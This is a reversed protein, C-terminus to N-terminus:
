GLSLPKKLEKNARIELNELSKDEYYINTDDAFLYLDLKKSINPLDNIYILFLLPGLVSGQPVGCSIQKLESCEGNIYVYQKRESLYSRFWQLSPGRVGYHEMKLLLINHNVTDFAKRLDIFIGCGYKGKDVSERIKDTIKILADITSNNKRFGFQKSYLINNLELFKYLREHMIKEMIKDFISLLSIPRYNNMDQTSGNKHIPIVKVIKLPDPFSGSVFSLNIINCLPIIILDPILKLLKVPISAPGASKNQLTNIIKFVEDHSVHALFFDFQNRKKLFKNPSINESRPISSETLPGVNVFFDNLQNAVDKPNDIIKGNINLQTIKTSINNRINVIERIGSWIKKINMKNMEFYESYYKKKSKKIERAARNRFLNYLRKTNANNPQRKKRAFIKNRAKILKFIETSIWPKSQLKIEKPSLKKYPAHRDVCGQLKSYFDIFLSNVNPLNTNWNQISVDERFQQSLFKSYDRQFISLNKYDMKERKITLFQSFHDSLSLFINGSKTEDILNDSFINDILTSHHDTVRTPQVIKPLFGFSCLMNYFLQYNQNDEIKLLDINFDGCLYIEKNEKTLKILCNELYHMFDKFNYRPHRYICGTVINKSLKNKIEVWVSEYDDNQASLDKREIFNFKENVYLATGGKNSNSPTYYTAYGEITVNTIFNENNKKLHRLLQM